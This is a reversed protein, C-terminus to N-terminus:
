EKGCNESSKKKGTVTTALQMKQNYFIERSDWEM